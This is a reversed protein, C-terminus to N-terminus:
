IKILFSISMRHKHTLRYSPVFNYTRPIVCFTPAGITFGLLLYKKMENLGLLLYKKPSRLSRLQM